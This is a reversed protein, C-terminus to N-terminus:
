RRTWSFSHAFTWTIRAVGVQYKLHFWARAVWKYLPYSALQLGCGVVLSSVEISLGLRPPLNQTSQCIKFLAYSSLLCNALLVPVGWFFVTYPDDELECDRSCKLREIRKRQLLRIYKQQWTLNPTVVPASWLSADLYALRWYSKDIIEHFLTCTKSVYKPSDLRSLILQIVDIPLRDM